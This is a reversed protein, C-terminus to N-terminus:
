ADEKVKPKMELMGDVGRTSLILACVTLMWSAFKGAESSKDGQACACAGTYAGLM